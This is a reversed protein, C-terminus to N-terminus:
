ILHQKENLDGFFYFTRFSGKIKRRTKLDGKKLM